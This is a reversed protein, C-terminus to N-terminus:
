AQCTKAHTSKRMRRDRERATESEREADREAQRERDSEFACRYELSDLGYELFFGIYVGFLGDSQWFAWYVRWLARLVRLCFGYIRWV